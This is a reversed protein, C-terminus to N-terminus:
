VADLKLMTSSDLYFNMSRISEDSVDFNYAKALSAINHLNQKGTLAPMVFVFVFILGFEM